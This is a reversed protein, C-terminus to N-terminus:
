QTSTKMSQLKKEWEYFYKLRRDLWLSNWVTKAISPEMAIKNSWDKKVSLKIQIGIRLTVCWASLTYSNFNIAIQRNNCRGESKCATIKWLCFYYIILRSFAHLCMYMPPNLNLERNKWEYIDSNHFFPFIILNSSNFKHWLRSCKKESNNVLGFCVCM